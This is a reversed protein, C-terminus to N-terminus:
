LVSGPARCVRSVTVAGYTVWRTGEAGEEGFLVPETDCCLAWVLQAM